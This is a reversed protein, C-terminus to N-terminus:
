DNKLFYYKEKGIFFFSLFLINIKGIKNIARSVYHFSIKARKNLKDFYLHNM